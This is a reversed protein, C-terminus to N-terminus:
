NLFIKILYNKYYCNEPPRMWASGSGPLFQSSGCCQRHHRTRCHCRRGRAQARHLRAVHLAPWGRWQVWLSTRGADATVPWPGLVNKEIYYFWNFYLLYLINYRYGCPPFPRLDEPNPTIRLSPPYDEPNPPLGWPQPNIRLTPPHNAKRFTKRFMGSPILFIFIRLM